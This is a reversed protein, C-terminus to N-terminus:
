LADAGRPTGGPAGGSATALANALANALPFFKGSADRADPIGDTYLVLAQGPLLMDRHVPTPQPSNEGIDLFEQCSRTHINRRFGLKRRRSPGLTSM